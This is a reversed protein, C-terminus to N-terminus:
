NNILNKIQSSIREKTLGKMSTPNVEKLLKSGLCGKLTWINDILELKREDFLQVKFNDQVNPSAVIFINKKLGMQKFYDRMEECVGIAACTKGSGLGHFLLLSNYPTQFSMFNKVFIQHPSIELSSNNLINAYEKVDM